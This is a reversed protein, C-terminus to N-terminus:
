LPVQQSETEASLKKQLTILEKQDAGFLAVCTRDTQACNVAGFSKVESLAKLMEQELSDNPCMMKTSGMKDFSMEYPRTASLMIEGM